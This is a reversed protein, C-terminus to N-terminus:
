VLKGSVFGRVSQMAAPLAVVDTGGAQALDPRGGGKGGVQQAVFNVVDGAKVKATLDKTVGALLTVKDSATALVIVASGLKDKLSDMTNRLMDIDAGDLTAALVKIGNVDIAQTALDGGQAAAIKAKAANLEKELSKIENQTQVIREVLEAPAAKLAGAAQTLQAALNQTYRVANMGTVAEIRRVGAAVGGESTIKFLGIDGTAHVHTGGCLEVSSGITLVRVEEGYKEGFLMMAGTEKADDFGMVKAQTDVNGLVEQNVLTEIRVIDDASVAANHAFDFRTKDADVLSGKQQVHEGLM